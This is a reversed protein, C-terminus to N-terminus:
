GSRGSAAMNREGVQVTYFMRGGNGPSALNGITSQERAAVQEIHHAAPITVLTGCILLIPFLLFVAYRRM